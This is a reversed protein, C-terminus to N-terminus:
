VEKPLVVQCLARLFNQSPNSYNSGITGRMFHVYDSESVAGVGVRRFKSMVM